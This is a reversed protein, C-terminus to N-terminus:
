SQMKQRFSPDERMVIPTLDEEEATLLRRIDRSDRLNYFFYIFHALSKKMSSSEPITIHSASKLHTKIPFIGEKKHTYESQSSIWLEDSIKRLIDLYINMDRSELYCATVLIQSRLCRKGSICVATPM